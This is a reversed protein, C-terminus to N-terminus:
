IFAICRIPVTVTAEIGTNDDTWDISYESDQPEAKSVVGGLSLDARVAERVADALVSARDFIVEPDDEGRFSACIVQLVFEEQFANTGGGAVIAGPSTRQAVSGLWIRDDATADDSPELPSVLVTGDNVSSVIADYLARRAAPVKSVPATM